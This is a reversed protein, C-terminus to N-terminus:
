SQLAYQRTGREIIKKELEALRRRASGDAVQDGMRIICGAIIQPRVVHDVVTGAGVTDQITKVWARFDTEPVPVATTLTLPLRGLREDVIGRFAFSIEPLLTLRRRSLLIRLFNGFLKPFREDVLKSLAAQKQTRSVDTSLFYARLVRQSEWAQAFGALAGETGALLARGAAADLGEAEVAEALALAYIKSGTDAHNTAM